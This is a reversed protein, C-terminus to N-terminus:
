QRRRGFLLRKLMLLAILASLALTVIAVPHKHWLLIPSVKGDFVLQFDDATVRPDLGFDSRLMLAVAAQQDRSALVADRVAPAGLSQMRAPTQAVVRLVRQSASRELRTM